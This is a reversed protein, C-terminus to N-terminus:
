RSRKVMENEVKKFGAPTSFKSSDLAASSFGSMETTMEMLTASSDGAAEAAPPATEQKVEEQQKKKKGFGGFLRHPVLPDFLERRLRPFFNQLDAEEDFQTKEVTTLFEFAM